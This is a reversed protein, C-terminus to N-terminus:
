REVWSVIPFISGGGGGEGMILPLSNMFSITFVIIQHNMKLLSLENFLVCVSVTVTCHIDHM